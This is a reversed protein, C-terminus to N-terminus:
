LLDLIQSAGHDLAASFKNTIVNSILRKAYDSSMDLNAVAIPVVWLAFLVGLRYDTTLEDRTYDTVGNAVLTEHYHDLAAVEVARRIEPDLVFGLFYAIDNTGRGWHAGAWDFLVVPDDAGPEFFMNDIHFDLHCLTLRDRALAKLMKPGFETPLRKAFAQAEPTLLGMLESETFAPWGSACDSMFTQYLEDDPTMAWPCESYDRSWWHAHLRAASNMVSLIEDATPPTESVSPRTELHSCDEMLIIGRANAVDADAFYVSPTRVPTDHAAEKYFLAEREFLAYRKAIENAGEFSPNVKVIATKPVSSDKSALNIRTMDSVYGPGEGLAAMSFTVDAGFVESLWETTIDELRTPFSM